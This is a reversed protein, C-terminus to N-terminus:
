VLHSNEDLTPEWTRRIMQLYREISKVSRGRIQSIEENTHGSLKLMAVHRLKEDLLSLLEECHIGVSDLMAETPPGEVFEAVNVFDESDRSQLVSEGSEQRIAQKRRVNSAKRATLMILIQWLDDRNQLKRFRGERAGLCLAHMASLALDEEDQVRRPVTGLKRRAIGTLRQFFRSWVLEAASEDGEKLDAILRTM